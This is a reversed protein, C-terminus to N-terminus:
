NKTAVLGINGANLSIGFRGIGIQNLLNILKKKIKLNIPFLSIWYSLPYTNVVNFTDLNKFGSIKFVNKLNYQNFLYIHEIDFIPSNEKLIKVSLGNTNHVIILIKGNKKLVTNMENIFSNLNVIHDLTHFCCIVDFSEKPYQNKKFIGIKIRNKLAKSSSNVMKKGPEVGYVDKVGNKILEDLFFGNGCGIELVKLSKYKNTGLIYQNFYNFYTKKLFESEKDYTFISSKYLNGIKNESFIPNSFILGCRQCKLFRYHSRDPIRRASFTKSDVAEYNIREKYLVLTNKNTQCIACITNIM